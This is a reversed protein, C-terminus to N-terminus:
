ANEFWEWDLGFCQRGITVFLNFSFKFHYTSGVWFDIKKHSLYRADPVSCWSFNFWGISLERNNYPGLKSGNEKALERAKKMTKIEFRM